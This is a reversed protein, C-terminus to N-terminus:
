LERLVPKPSRLTDDRQAINRETCCRCASRSGCLGSRTSAHRVVWFLRRLGSAHQSHGSAQCSTPLSGEVSSSMVDNYSESLASGLNRNLHLNIHLTLMKMDVGKPATSDIVGTCILSPRSRKLADTHDGHRQAIPAPTKCAAAGPM